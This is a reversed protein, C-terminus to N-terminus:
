ESTQLQEPNEQEDDKIDQDPQLMLVADIGEFRMVAEYIASLVASVQHEEIGDLWGTLKWKTTTNIM